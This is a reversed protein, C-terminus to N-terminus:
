ATLGRMVPCTTQHAVTVSWQHMGDEPDKGDYSFLLHSACDPCEAREIIAPGPVLGAPAGRVDLRDRM